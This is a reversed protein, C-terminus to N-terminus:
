WAIQRSRSSPLDNHLEGRHFRSQRPRGCTRCTSKEGKGSADSGPRPLDGGDQADGADRAMSARRLLDPRCPVSKLVPAEPTFEFIAGGGSAAISNLLTSGAAAPS